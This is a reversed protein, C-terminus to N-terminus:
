ALAEELADLAAEIIEHPIRAGELIVGNANRVAQAFPAAWADEWILLAASSNPELSEAAYAIDEDSIIGGVEGELGAFAALEEIADFEVVGVTGDADKTIFTLDIIRVLGSEILKALEPAIEGSFKNGPFGVVLYEVPGISM